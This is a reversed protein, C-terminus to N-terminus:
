ECAELEAWNRGVFGESLTPIDLHQENMCKRLIAMDERWTDEPASIDLEDHVTALFTSRWHRENFWALTCAKTQDAASGQILYNLLKYSFDQLRGEIIKAPEATYVRGGLTRIAQGSRGRSTVDQQISRIGPMADLYAEKIRQAEERSVSLQTSLGTAGSGYIIAFATIKVDKRAFLIGIMEHIIDVAMQHPDLSPNAKYAQCLSGDEFHALIRIEQSSYDRKLWLHGEEPLCYRRLLPLPHLGTPTALAIGRSDVFETPVNQFNPSDSSLRGTRTGKSKDGKREQRVQNWNPHLRGDGNSLELWPRMFTQLCTELGSIYEWYIKITPDVIKINGKAMSKRGTPTLVWDKVAGSNHLAHQLLGTNSLGGSPLSLIQELEGSAVHLCQTYVETHWELNARDCKIGHTTSDILHPMLARERDYADVMNLENIRSRLLTYLGRTRIVDGMAYSGVLDGPAYAIYEGWTADTAQHINSLVWSRLMDQEVPPVHLWREASPKLSFSPSHPDCLFLLYLTDHYRKWNQKLNLGKANWAWRDWVSLDFPANHFLLEEGSELVQRLGEEAEPWTTNNQTPHGWARYEPEQGDVLIAYGVPSPPNLIPNGKIAHTEFDVTIM